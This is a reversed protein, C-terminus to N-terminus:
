STGLEQAFIILNGDPDNVSALHQGRTTTQRDLELGNDIIPQVHQEIDDVGITVESNGAKSPDAFVQIWATDTIQWEALGDMLRQDPERGFLRKYWAVATGHDSVILGASLQTFAM